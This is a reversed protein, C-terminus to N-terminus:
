FIRAREVEAKMKIKFANLKLEMKRRRREKRRQGKVIAKLSGINEATYVGNGRAAPKSPSTLKPTECSRPGTRVTTRAITATEIKVWTGLISIM